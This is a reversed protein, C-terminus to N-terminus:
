MKFRDVIGIKERQMMEKKAAMAIRIAKDTRQHQWVTKERKRGGQEERKRGRGRLCM